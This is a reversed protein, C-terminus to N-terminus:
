AAGRAFLASNGSQQAPRIEQPKLWAAELGQSGRFVWIELFRQLTVGAKSAEGRAGAMVTETVPAKKSRRLTLWDAWTQAEVDSPCDPLTARKRTKKEEERIEEIRNTTKDAESASLEQVDTPAEDAHRESQKRKTDLARRKASPGNHEEYDPAQLGDESVVLWGISQMAVSFGKWGITEDMVQPTYFELLGDPSHEDFVAWVAHLAGVVRLRDSKMISAMRIVKPHDRLGVGMKIWGSM